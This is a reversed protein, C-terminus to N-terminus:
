TDLTENWESYRGSKDQASVIFAVRVHKNLREACDAEGRTITKGANQPGWILMKQGLSGKAVTKIGKTVGSPAIQDGELSCSIANRELPTDIKM